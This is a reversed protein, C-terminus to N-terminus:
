IRYLDALQTGLKDWDFQHAYDLTRSESWSQQGAQHLASVLANGTYTSRTVLNGAPQLGTLALDM